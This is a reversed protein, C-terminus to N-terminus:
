TVSQKVCEQTALCQCYWLSHTWRHERRLASQTKESVVHSLISLLKGDIAQSPKKKQSPKGLDQRQNSDSSLCKYIVFICMVAMYMLVSNCFPVYVYMLNM